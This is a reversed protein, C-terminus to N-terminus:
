RCWTLIKFQDHQLSTIQLIQFTHLVAQLLTAVNCCKIYAHIDNDLTLTEVTTRTIRRLKERYLNVGYIEVSTMMMLHNFMKHIDYKCVQLVTFITKRIRKGVRKSFIFLVFLSITQNEQFKM